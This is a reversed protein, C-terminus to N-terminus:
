NFLSLYSEKFNNQELFNKALKHAGLCFQDFAAQDMNVCKQITAAWLGSNDLPLECGAQQVALNKWPTQDSIIVPRGSALSEFISHGFNESKTPLIFFHNKQIQQYVQDHKLEDYFCIDINEPVLTAMQGCKMAYNTDEAPGYVSLKIKGSLEVTKLLGLLFLINKIPHIRSVCILHLHGKEKGLTTFDIIKGPLNGILIVPNTFNTQIIYKEDRDTAHFIVDGALFYKKLIHLVINKKLAKIALAAPKLMGRPALVKKIGSNNRTVWLPWFTFYISWMSNLYITNPKIEAIVQAITRITVFSPSAYFVRSRLGFPQWCNLKIGSYPKIDKFDRDSTFIYIDFLDELEDVLNILSQIPGGAKSGPYFWDTFILLTPIM